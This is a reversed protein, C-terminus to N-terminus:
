ERPLSTKVPEVTNNEADSVWARKGDWTIGAPKEVSLSIEGQMEGKVPDIKYIKKGIPDVLLLNVGDFGLGGADKINSVLYSKEISGGEPNIKYIYVDTENPTMDDPVSTSVAYLFGDAWALGSTENGPAAFDKVLKGTVDYRQIRNSATSVWLHSGDFALGEPGIEACAFAALKKGKKDVKIVKMRGPVAIWIHEGDWAFDGPGELPATFREPDCGGQLICSFLIGFHVLGIINRTKM